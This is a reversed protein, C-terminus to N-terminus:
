NRVIAGPRRRARRATIGGRDLLRGPRTRAPDLWRRMRATTAACRFQLTRGYQRHPRAVSLPRSRRAGGGASLPSRPRGRPGAVGSPDWLSWCRGMELCARSRDIVGRGPRELLISRIIAPGRRSTAAANSAVRSLADRVAIANAFTVPLVSLVTGHVVSVRPQAM